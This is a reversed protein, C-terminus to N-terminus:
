DPARNQDGIPPRVKTDLRIADTLQPEARLTQTFGSSAFSIFGGKPWNLEIRWRYFPRDLRVDQNDIASRSIHDIVLDHLATRGGSDGCDISICLDGADHFKLTAPAVKFQVKGEVSRVWEVIHDIDFLVESLWIRQQLHTVLAHIVDDHWAYPNFETSPM